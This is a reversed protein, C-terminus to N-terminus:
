LRVAATAQNKYCEIGTLVPAEKGRLALEKVADAPVNSDKDFALWRGDAMFFYAAVVEGCSIVFLSKQPPSQPLDVAQVTAAILGLFLATLVKM